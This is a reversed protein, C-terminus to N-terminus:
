EQELEEESNVENDKNKRISVRKITFSKFYEHHEAPIIYYKCLKLLDKM